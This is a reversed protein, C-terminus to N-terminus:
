GNADEMLAVAARINAFTERHKISFLTNHELSEMLDIAEQKDEIAIVEPQQTAVDRILKVLGYLARDLTEATNFKLVADTSTIAAHAMEDAQIPEITKELDVATKPASEQTQIPDLVLSENNDATQIQQYNARDSETRHDVSVSPIPDAKTSQTQDETEDDNLDSYYARGKPTISWRKDLSDVHNATKLHFLNDSIAKALNPSDIWDLKNILDQRTLGTRSKMLAKAIHERLTM